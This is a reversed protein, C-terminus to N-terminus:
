WRGSALRESQETLKLLARAFPERDSPEIAEEVQRAIELVLPSCEEYFQRGNATLRVVSQRQDAVCGQMEVLGRSILDHVLRSVRSKNIRARTGLAKCNM